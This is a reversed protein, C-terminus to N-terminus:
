TSGTAKRNSRLSMAEDCFGKTLSESFATSGSNSALPSKSIMVRNPLAM